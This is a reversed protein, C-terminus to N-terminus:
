CRSFVSNYHVMQPVVSTTGQRKDALQLYNQLLSLSFALQGRRWREGTYQYQKQKETFEERERVLRVM